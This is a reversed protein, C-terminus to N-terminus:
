NRLSVSTQFEQSAIDIQDPSTAKQSLTFNITVNNPVGSISTCTFTLTSGCIAGLTVKSSTLYDTRVPSASTSAIKTVEGNVACGFVTIGDDQNTVTLSNPSSSCAISKANRVMREMIELAFDGNQKVEKQIEVKASSRTTTFFVQVIVVSVVAILAASMALEILTFGSTKDQKM